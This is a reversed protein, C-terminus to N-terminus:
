LNNSAQYAVLSNSTNLVRNNQDQEPKKAGRVRAVARTEEGMMNERYSNPNDVFLEKIEDFSTESIDVQAVNNINMKNNGVVKQDKIGKENVKKSEEERESVNKKILFYVGLGLFIIVFIILPIILKNKGSMSFIEMMNNGVKNSRM